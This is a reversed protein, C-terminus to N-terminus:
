LWAALSFELSGPVSDSLNVEAAGSGALPHTELGAAGVEDAFEYMWTLRHVNHRTLTFVITFPVDAERLATIGRRMAAFAGPAGRITDHDEEPGDVSVAVLRALSRLVRAKRPTVLTGNTTVSTSFGLDLASALFRELDPWLLPEGGSIGVYGYRLARADRLFEL